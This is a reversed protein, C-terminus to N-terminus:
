FAYSGTADMYEVVVLIYNTSGNSHVRPYRCNRLVAYHNNKKREPTLDSTKWIIAVCDEHKSSGEATSLSIVYNENPAM